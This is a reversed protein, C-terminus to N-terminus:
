ASPALAARFRRTAETVADEIAVLEISSGALYGDIAPVQAIVTKVDAATAVAGGHVLLPVKVGARAALLSLTHAAEQLPPVSRAGGDLRTLGLHLCIFDPELALVADLTEEDFVFPAIQLGAERAELLLEIERRFGLGSEELHMRYKGDALGVSPFNQIGAIGLARLDHLLQTRGRPDAGSLGVLLPVSEVAAAVEAALELAVENARALPLTAALSGLGALRARSSTYVAVYDAGGAEAARAVLGCGAAVVLM